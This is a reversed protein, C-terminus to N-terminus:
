DSGDSTPRPAQVSSHISVVRISQTRFIPNGRKETTVLDDAGVLVAAAVHLADFAGLGCAFAEQRARAIVEDISDPWHKVARFFETYMELEAKRREYTAKPVVELEVFVSSAFERSPDDLIRMARRAEETGGRGLEILVGSDVFTVPM